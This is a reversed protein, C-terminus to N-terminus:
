CAQGQSQSVGGALARVPEVEIRLNAMPGTQDVEVRYEAVDPFPSHDGGPRETCM